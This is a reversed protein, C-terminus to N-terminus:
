NVPLNAIESKLYSIVSRLGDISHTLAKNQRDSLTMYYIQNKLRGAFIMKKDTATIKSNAFQEALKALEENYAMESLAVAETSSGLLNSYEAIKFLVQEPDSHNITATITSQIQDTIEKVRTLTDAM